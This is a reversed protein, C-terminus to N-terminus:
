WNRDSLEELQMDLRAIRRLLLRNRRLIRAFALGAIGTAAAAFALAWRASLDAGAGQPAAMAYSVAAILVSVALVSRTPLTHLLRDFVSHAHAGVGFQRPAQM